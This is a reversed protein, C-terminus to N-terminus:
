ELFNFFAIALENSNMVESKFSEIVQNYDIVISNAKVQFLFSSFENKQSNNKIIKYFNDIDKFNKFKIVNYLKNYYHDGFLLVSKGILAAELTISGSVTVVGLSKRLISHSDTHPNLLVVKPNEILEQYFESPRVSQLPTYDSINLLLNRKWYAPHEKVCLKIGEPMSSSIMRVINLQDAYHNATPITTAEPQFHLPFFIYDEQPLDKEHFLLTNNLKYKENLIKFLLYFRNSAKKLIKLVSYSQFRFSDLFRTRPEIYIQKKIINESNIKSLVLLEELDIPLRTLNPNINNIILNEWNLDKMLLYRNGKSLPNVFKHFILLEIQLMKSVLFISYDHPTHPTNGLIIKTINNTVIFNYWYLLIRNALNDLTVFDGKIDFTRVWRNLINILNYKYLYYDDPYSSFYLKPFNSLYMDLNDFKPITILRDRSISPKIIDIISYATSGVNIDLYYNAIELKKDFPISSLLNM